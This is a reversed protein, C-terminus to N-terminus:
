HSTAKDVTNELNRRRMLEYLVVSAAVSANYTTIAGESPIRVWLDCERRVVRRLGSGEGGVVLGVEGPLRIDWPASGTSDSTGVLWYGAEKIERMARPLNGVACMRVHELGGCAAKAVAPSLPATRKREMVVRGAGMGVCSRLIAGLNRPDQIGELIVMPGQGLLLDELEEWPFPSVLAVVGQHSGGRALRHLQEVEAMHVEVGAAMRLIGKIRADKRNSTVWLERVARRGSKLAEEVPTLGYLLELPEQVMKVRRNM